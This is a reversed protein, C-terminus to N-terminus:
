VRSGSQSSLSGQGCGTVERNVVRNVVRVM